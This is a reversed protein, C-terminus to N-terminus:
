RLELKSPQGLSRGGLSLYGRDRPSRGSPRQPACFLNQPLGEAGNECKRLRRDATRQWLMGGEPLDQAGDAEGSDCPCQRQKVDDFTEGLSERPVAGRRGRSGRMQGHPADGCADGPPATRAQEPLPVRAASRPIAWAMATLSIGQPPRPLGSRPAEPGCRSRGAGVVRPCRWRLLASVAESPTGPSLVRPHSCHEERSRQIIICTEKTRCTEGSRHSRSLTHCERAVLRQGTGVPPVKYERLDGISHTGTRPSACLKHLNGRLCRGSAPHSAQFTAQGM